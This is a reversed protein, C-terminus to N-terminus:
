LVSLRRRRRRQRLPSALQDGAVLPKRTAPPTGASTSCADGLATREASYWAVARESGRRARTLWRVKM